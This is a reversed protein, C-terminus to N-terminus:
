KRESIDLAQTLVYTDRLTEGQVLALHVLAWVVKGSKHVFRKEVQLSGSMSSALIERRRSEAEERDEPHTLDSTSIRLMDDHSYGLLACWANNVQVLRDDVGSVAMPIPAMLFAVGHLDLAGTAMTAPPQGETLDHFSVLVDFAADSDEMECVAVQAEVINGGKSHVEVRHSLRTESEDLCQKWTNPRLFIESLNRGVIEAPTWGFLVETPGGLSVVIGDRKAAVLTAGLNARLVSASAAASGQLIGEVRQIADSDAM